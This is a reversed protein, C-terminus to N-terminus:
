MVPYCASKLQLQTSKTTALKASSSKIVVATHNKRPLHGSAVYKAAKRLARHLNHQVAGGFM